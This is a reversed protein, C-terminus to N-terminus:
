LLETVLMDPSLAKVVWPKTSLTVVAIPSRVADRLEGAFSRRPMTKTRCVALSHLLARGAEREGVLVDERAGHIETLRTQVAELVAAEAAGEFTRRCAYGATLPVQSEELDFLLVGVVPLRHGRPTLDFVFPALGNASLTAALPPARVLRDGVQEITWGEPLTRAVADREILELVAHELAAEGRTAHAGMGNSSWSFSSPGFWASGAPPCYVCESPLSVRKGDRLRAGSTWAVCEAGAELFADSPPPGWRLSESPPHEAVALEMAEGLASWQAAELTLGKGQTVQLVHGGPRVATVVEIGLRDLTTLRAFRTVGFRAALTKLLSTAM